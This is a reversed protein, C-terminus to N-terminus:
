SKGKIIRGCKGCQRLRSNKIAKGKSHKCNKQMEELCNELVAIRAVVKDKETTYETFNTPKAKSM